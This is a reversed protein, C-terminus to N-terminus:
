DDYDADFDFGRRQQPPAETTTTAPVPQTAAPPTSSPPPPLPLADLMAQLSGIAEEVVRRVAQMSPTPAPHQQLWLRLTRASIGHATAFTTQDLDSARWAAALTAREKPSYHPM